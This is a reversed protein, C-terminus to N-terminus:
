RAVAETRPIQDIVEVANSASSSILLSLSFYVVVALALAVAAVVWIPVKSQVEAAAQDRPLGHPSLTLADGGPANRLIAYVEEILIRLREQEHLQYRGKFGLTMCLYYIELAETNGSPQSKLQDLKVFFEEGADYRNYLELQLPKALWYNKQSWNSSLITEDIFAVIAFKGNRVDEGPIGARAAEREARDMLDKIRQRLVDADGFEQAGRLQLILTFCPAFVEALRRDKSTEMALNPRAEAVAM